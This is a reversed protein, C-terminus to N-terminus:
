VLAPHKNAAETVTVNDPTLTGPSSPTDVNEWGELDKETIGSSEMMEAYTVVRNQQENIRAEAEELLMQDAIMEILMDYVFPSLIVAKRKNNKFVIKRGSKEVEDFIKGAQGKNFSSITVIDNEMNRISNLDM